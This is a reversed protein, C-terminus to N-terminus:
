EVMAAEQRWKLLMGIRHRNEGASLPKFLFDQILPSLSRLAPAQGRELIVMIPLHTGGPRSRAQQILDAAQIHGLALDLIFLDPRWADIADLVDGAETIWLKKWGEGPFHTNLQSRVLHDGSAVLMRVGDSRLCAEKGRRSALELLLHVRTYFLTDDANKPLYDDAGAELSRERIDRGLASLVVFIVGRTRPNGKVLRCLELGDMGPMVVDCLVLDPPNTQMAALAEQASSCAEVKAGLLELRASQYMRIFPEDDIFLIRLAGFDNAM